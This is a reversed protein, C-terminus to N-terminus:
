SPSLNLTILSASAAMRSPTSYATFPGLFTSPTPRSLHATERTSERCVVMGPGDYQPRAPLIYRLLRFSQLYVSRCLVHSMMYSLCLHGSFSGECEFALPTCSQIHSASHMPSLFMSCSFVVAFLRGYSQRLLRSFYACFAHLLALLLTM